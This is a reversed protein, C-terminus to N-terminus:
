LTEVDLSRWLYWSAYSAYPRWPEALKVMESPKPLADLGYAKKIAARVGLDGVPLVDPRRLAFLLFMHATWEGIGKVQTLLEIVESDPLGSLSEFVIEGDRTQRALDRIYSLKQPSVGLSRMKQPRLKLISAPTLPSAAAALRGFIAGAAKGHLQQYVISRVLNEFTPERFDMRCPGVTEIIGRLVPDSKKLHLVAKRM